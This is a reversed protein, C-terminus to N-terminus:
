QPPGITICKKRAARFTSVNAIWEASESHYVFHFLSLFPLLSATYVLIARQYSRNRQSRACSSSSSQDFQCSLSVALRTKTPHFCSKRNNHALRIIFWRTRLVSNAGRSDSISSGSALVCKTTDNLYVDLNRSSRGASTQVDPSRLTM